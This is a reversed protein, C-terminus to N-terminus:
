GGRQSHVHKAWFFILIPSPPSNERWWLFKIKPDKTNLPSFIKEEGVCSCLLLTWLRISCGLQGGFKFPCFYTLTLLPVSSCRYLDLLTVATDAPPWCFVLEVSIYMRGAANRGRKTLQKPCPLYPYPDKFHFAPGCLWVIFWKPSVSCRSCHCTCFFHKRFVQRATVEEFPAWRRGAAIAIALRLFYWVFARGEALSGAPCKKELM